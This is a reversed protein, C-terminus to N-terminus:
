INSISEAKSYEGNELLLDFWFNLFYLSLINVIIGFSVFYNIPMFFDNKIDFVLASLYFLSTLSYFGTWFIKKKWLSDFSFWLFATLIIPRLIFAHDFVSLILFLVTGLKSFLIIKERNM